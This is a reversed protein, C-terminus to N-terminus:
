REKCVVSVPAGIAWLETHTHSLSLTHIHTHTHTAFNSATRRSEASVNYREQSVVAALMKGEPNSTERMTLCIVMGATSTAEEFTIEDLMM